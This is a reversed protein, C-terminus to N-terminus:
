EDVLENANVQGGTAEFINKIVGVQYRAKIKKIIKRVTNPSVNSKKAFQNPSMFNLKLYEKLDM